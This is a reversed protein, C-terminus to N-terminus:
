RRAQGTRARGLWAGSQGNAGAFTHDYAARVDECGIILRNPVCQLSDSVSIIAAITQEASIATREAVQAYILLHM